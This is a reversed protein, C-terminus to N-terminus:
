CHFMGETIRTRANIAANSNEDPGIVQNYMASIMYSLDTDTAVTRLQNILRNILAIVGDSTALIPSSLMPQIKIVAPPIVMTPVIKM